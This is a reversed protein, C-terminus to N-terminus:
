KEQRYGDAAVEPQENSASSIDDDIDFLFNLLNRNINISGIKNEM